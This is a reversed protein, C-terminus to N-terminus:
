IEMSHKRVLRALQERSLREDSEEVLKAIQKKQQILAINVVKMIRDQLIDDMFFRQTENHRKILNRLSEKVKNM